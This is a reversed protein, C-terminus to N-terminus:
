TVDTIYQSKIDFNLCVPQISSMNNKAFYDITKFNQGFHFFAPRLGAATWFQNDNSVASSHSEDVEFIQIMM